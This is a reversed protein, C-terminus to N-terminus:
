CTQKTHHNIKVELYAPPRETMVMEQLYWITRCPTLSVHSCLEGGEEPTTLRVPHIHESHNPNGEKADSLMMIAIFACSLLVEDFVGRGDDVGKVGKNGWLSPRSTTPAPAPAPPPSAVHHSRHGPSWSLCLGLGQPVGGGSSAASSRFSRPLSTSLYPM